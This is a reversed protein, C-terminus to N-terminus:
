DRDRDERNKRDKSMNPIGFQGELEALRELDIPGVINVLTLERPEASIVVLGTVFDGRSQVYIEVNERRGKVNVIRQWGAGGAVQSRFRDVIARDYMGERPFNYSRVYIGELKQVMERVNRQERDANSLFKSALRLMAGDLTVDVVEDAKDALGPFDLNLRQAAAPTAIVVAFLFVILQKRM